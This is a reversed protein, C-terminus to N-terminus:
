TGLLWRQRERAIDAFDEPSLVGGLRDAISRLFGGAVFIWAEADPDREAPMGGAEQTTRLVGAIFLHVERMHRRVAKQIERDDVAETVGQIWLSPMLVRLHRLRMSAQGIALVGNEEGLETLSAELGARFQSWAEDLCACWLERKSAFHRYLIPESVGAQRAIEATTTGGYSGSSFTRLAVEVITRRRETASLRGATHAPTM